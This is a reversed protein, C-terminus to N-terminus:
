KLALGQPLPSNTSYFLPPQPKAEAGEESHYSIRMNM